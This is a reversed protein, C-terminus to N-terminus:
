PVGGPPPSPDALSSSFFTRTPDGWPAIAALSSGSREWFWAFFFGLALNEASNQLSLGFGWLAIKKLWKVHFETWGVEGSQGVNIEVRSWGGPPGGGQLSSQGSFFYQTVSPSQVGQPPPGGAESIGKDATLGRKPVQM